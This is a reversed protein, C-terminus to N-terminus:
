YWSLPDGVTAATSGMFDISNFLANESDSYMDEVAKGQSRKFLGVLRYLEEDFAAESVEYGVVNGDDDKIRWFGIMSAAQVLQDMERESLAGFTAGQSKAEVLTDIFEQSILREVTGIFEKMASEDPTFPTWRSVGYAGVSRAKGKHNLLAQVTDIKDQAVLYQGEANRMRQKDEAIQEPTPEGILSNTRELENVQAELLRRELDDNAGLMDRQRKATAIQEQLLEQSLEGSAIQMEKFQRDLGSMRLDLDMQQRM